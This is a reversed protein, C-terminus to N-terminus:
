TSVEVGLETLQDRVSCWMQYFASWEFMDASDGLEGAQFRRHFENSSLQHEAQFARLRQEIQELERQARGRELAILKDITVDVTKSRYGRRYLRELSEIRALTQGHASM